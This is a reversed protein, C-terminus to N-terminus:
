PPSGSDVLLRVATPGNLGGVFFYDKDGPADLIRPIFSSVPELGVSQFEPGSLDTPVRGPDLSRDRQLKGTASEKADSQIRQTEPFKSLERKATGLKRKASRSERASTSTGM